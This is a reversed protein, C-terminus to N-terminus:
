RYYSMQRSGFMEAASKVKTQKKPQQRLRDREAHLWSYATKMVKGEKLEPFDEVPGGKLLRGDSVFAVHTMWDKLGDFIHTALLVICKREECEQKFFRLLQLRGLVDMDVTVEDLLLVKFPKLLGMCIQVRRRQGDSVRHLHWNLDIDLLDVLKQRREPDVGPVNFILQQASIDAQMPLDSGASAVSQRWQQGLFALTGDSVLSLDHFPSRGVVRIMDRDVMFRGALIQLLTTKGAGNCGLLLCRSGPELSMCFDKLFPESGPFSYTLNSAVIGDSTDDQQEVAMRVITDNVLTLIGDGSM